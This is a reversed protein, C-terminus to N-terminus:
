PNAAGPGTAIFSLRTLWQRLLARKERYLQEAQRPTVREFVIEEGPRLQGVRDLDAGIVQAIRPYGGITQGDVGLLICQGERTAQITGPCVPESVMERVAVDLPDSHLRLGMRNSDSRVTFRRGLADSPFWDAERGPLIRLLVPESPGQM